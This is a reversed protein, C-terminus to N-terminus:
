FGWLIQMKIDFKLFIILPNSPVRHFYVGTNHKREKLRAPVHKFLGLAQSRNAFDIDIDPLAM